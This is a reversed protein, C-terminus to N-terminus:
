AEQLYLLLFMLIYRKDYVYINAFINVFIYYFVSYLIIVVHVKPIRCRHRLKTRTWWRTKGLTVFCETMVESTGEYIFM